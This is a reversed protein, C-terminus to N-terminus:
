SKVAQTQQRQEHEAKAKTFENKLKLKIEENKKIRDWTLKFLIYNRQKEAKSKGLDTKASDPNNMEWKPDEKAKEYIEKVSEEDFYTEIFKEKEKFFRDRTWPYPNVPFSEDRIKNNVPKSERVPVSRMTTVATHTQYIQTEITNLTPLINVISSKMEQNDKKLEAVEETLKTISSNLRQLSQVLRSVDSKKDSM